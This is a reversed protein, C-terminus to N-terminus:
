LALKGHYAMDRPNFKAKIHLAGAATEFTVDKDDASIAASRPFLFILTTGGPASAVFVREPAVRSKGKPTLSAGSLLRQQLQQVREPDMQQRGGFPVGSATIVYFQQEWGGIRGAWPIEAARSADRIPAATEWRVIVKPASFAAPPEAGMDGGM